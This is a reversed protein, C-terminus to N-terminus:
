RNSARNLVERPPTDERVIEETRRAIFGATDTYADADAVTGAAISRALIDEYRRGILEEDPPLHPFMAHYARNGLVYRRERDYVVITADIADLTDRLRANRQQLTDSAPNPSPAAPLVYLTAGDRLELTKAQAQLSQLYQPEALSTRPDVDCTTVGLAALAGASHRLVEGRASVQVYELGSATLLEYPM